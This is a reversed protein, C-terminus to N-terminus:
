LTVVEKMKREQEIKDFLLEIRDKKNSKFSYKDHIYIYKVVDYFVDSFIRQEHFGENCKKKKKFESKNVRYNEHYVKQVTDGNM